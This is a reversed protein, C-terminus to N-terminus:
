GPQTSERSGPATGALSAAEEPSAAARAPVERLLAGLTALTEREEGPLHFCLEMLGALLEGEGPPPAGPERGLLVLLELPSSRAWPVEHVPLRRKGTADAEGPRFQPARAWVHEHARLGEGLGGVMRQEGERWTFLLDDAVLKAGSAVLLLAASSKGSGSPGAFLVGRGGAEVASAHLARLGRAALPALLAPLLLQDFADELRGWAWGPLKALVEGGRPRVDVVPGLEPHQWVLRERDGYAELAGRKLVAPGELGPQDLTGTQLMLVIDAPQGSTEREEELAAPLSFPPVGDDRRVEIRLGAFRAIM